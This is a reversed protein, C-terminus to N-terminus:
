ALFSRTNRLRPCLAGTIADVSIVAAVKTTLEFRSPESEFGPSPIQEVGSPVGWPTHVSRAAISSAFALGPGSVMFKLMGAPTGRVILGIGDGDGNGIGSIMLGTVISAVVCGPNAPAGTISNDPSRSSGSSPENLPNVM